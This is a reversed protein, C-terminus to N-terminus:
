QENSKSINKCHKMVLRNSIGMEKAISNISKGAARETDIRQRETDNLTRVPRGGAHAGDIRRKKIAGADKMTDILDNCRIFGEDFTEQMNNDLTDFITWVNMVGQHYVSPCIVLLIIQGKDHRSDTFQNGGIREIICPGQESCNKYLFKVLEKRRAKNVKGLLEDFKM